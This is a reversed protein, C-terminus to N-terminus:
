SEEKKLEAKSNFKDFVRGSLRKENCIVLRELQSSIQSLWFCVDKKPAKDKEQTKNKSKKPM